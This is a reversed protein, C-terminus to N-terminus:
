GGRDHNTLFSHIQGESGGGRLGLENPDKGVQKRNMESQLGRGCGLPRDTQRLPERHGPLWHEGTEELKRGSAVHEGVVKRERSRHQLGGREQGEETGAEQPARPQSPKEM